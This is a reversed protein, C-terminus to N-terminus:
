CIRTFRGADDLPKVYRMQGEVPLPMSKNRQRQFLVNVRLNNAFRQTTGLNADGHIQVIM